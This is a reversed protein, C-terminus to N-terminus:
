FAASQPDIFLRHLLELSLLKHIETTYNRDGEIHHQVMSQVTKKQLYPRSLTRSDLLMERIYSALLDRYWVRFHYYKHRGLFVREPHFPALVHDIRAMWHPMGHNYAYDAKFTLTQYQRVIAGMFQESRGAFGM